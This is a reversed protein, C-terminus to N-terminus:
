ACAHETRPEFAPLWRCGGSCFPFAWNEALADNQDENQSFVLCKGVSNLLPLFKRKVICYGGQNIFAEERRTVYTEVSRSYNNSPFLFM